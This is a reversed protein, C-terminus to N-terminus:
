SGNQSQRALVRRAEPLDWLVGIPEGGSGLLDRRAFFAIAANSSSALLSNPDVSLIGERGAAEADVM